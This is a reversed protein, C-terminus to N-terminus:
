PLEDIIKYIIQVKDYGLNDSAESVFYPNIEVDVCTLRLGSM